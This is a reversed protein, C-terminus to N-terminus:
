VPCTLQEHFPEHGRGSEIHELIANLVAPDAEAKVILIEADCRPCFIPEIQFVRQMLQEWTGFASAQGCSACHVMATQGLLPEVSVPTPVPKSVEFRRRYWRRYHHKAWERDVWGTVMGQLGIRTSPNVTAMFIHGLVLPLGIVAITLHGVWALFGVGPLWIWIGTAIYLPYTAQVMMFNLKEAANFKGQEPLQIRRDVAARPCLVLWRFDDM